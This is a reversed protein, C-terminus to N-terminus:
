KLNACAVFLHAEAFSKRIAIATNGRQLDALPIPVSTFSKGNAVNNLPYKVSSANPCVGEFIQAPRIASDAAMQLTVETRGEAAILLAAGPLHDDKVADFYAIIGKPIGGCGVLTVADPAPKLNLSHVGTLLSALTSSILTTSKGDVPTALPYKVPANGLCVGEQIQAAKVLGVFPASISVNVETQNGKSTLAASGPSSDFSPGPRFLLNVSITPLPTPSPTPTPTETPIPTPTEPIPTDTPRPTRTPAPAPTATPTAACAILIASFFLAPAAFLRLTLKM